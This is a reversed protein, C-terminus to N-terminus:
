DENEATDVRDTESQPNISKEVKDEKLSQAKVKEAPSLFEMAKDVNPLGALSEKMNLLNGLEPSAEKLQELQAEDVNPLINQLNQIDALMKFLGGQEVKGQSEAITEMEETIKRLDTLLKKTERKKDKSANIDEEEVKKLVEKMMRPIQLLLQQM